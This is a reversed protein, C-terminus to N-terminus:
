VVSSVGSSIPTAEFRESIGQEYMGHGAEHITAFLCSGLHKENVRTLIRVDGSSFKTMFPHHTLDYHEDEAGANM